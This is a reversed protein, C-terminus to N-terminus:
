FILQMVQPMFQTYVKNTEFAEEIDNSSTAFKFTQTYNQVFRKIIDMQDLFTRTADERGPEHCPM